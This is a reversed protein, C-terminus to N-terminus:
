QAPPEHSSPVPPIAPLGGPSEARRITELLEEFVPPSMIGTVPYGNLFYTPTSTVHLREAEAIDRRVAELGRGGDRCTRFAAVDLGLTQADRELEQYDYKSQAEFIKDHLAWFKGQEHACETAIALDCAHPHVTRKMTANCSMDLPFHKFVFSVDKRGALLIPNFRFARACSPCLFDSFEVIELPRDAAGLRPDGATDVHARPQQSVFQVMQKKLAGPLGQIIFSTAAQVGVVGLSGAVVMGWVLWTVPVHPRLALAHVSSPLRALLTSWPRGVARKAVLVILLNVAYTALCLPCLYGIVLIMQAFLAADVVVCALSLGVLSVLAHESWEPFQWAVVSLSFALWYGIIGWLSLPLGAFTGLSSGTVAHCNFLTGSAGCAVGGVLEGRLMALHVFTLYGCVGIGILSLLACVLGARSAKM